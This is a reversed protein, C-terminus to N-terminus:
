RNMVRKAKSTGEVSKGGGAVVKEKKAGKKLGKRIAEVERKKQEADQLATLVKAVKHREKSIQLDKEKAVAAIELDKDKRLRNMEATLRKKEAAVKANVLGEMEARVERLEERYAQLVKEKIEKILSENAAIMERIKSASGEDSDKLKSTLSAILEECREIKELYQKTKSKEEEAEKSFVRLKSRFGMLRSSLASVKSQSESLSAELASIYEDLTILEGSIPHPYFLKRPFFPVPIRRKKVPRPHLAASGASHSVSPSLAHSPFSRALSSCLHLTALLLFPRLAFM